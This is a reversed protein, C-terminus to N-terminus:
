RQKVTVRARGTARGRVLLGEPTAYIGEVSVSDVFASLTMVNGITRNLGQVLLVRGRELVPAVPVRARARLLDRLADGRVWAVVNVLDSDTDLDYDLDPVVIAASTDDIRPTGLLRLTGRADGHFRVTLAVRRGAAPAARISTIEISRGVQTITRGRLAETIERSATAWDVQGDVLIRFGGASTDHSLAPLPRPTVVPEPGVVIRPLADLGAQVTLVTGSGTVKGLRLRQPRLELWVDDRLRIPRELRAWWGGARESIDIRNVMRDIHPMRGAVARRAADVVRETVDFRVISVRCRDDGGRSEPALRALRARSELHWATDLTLPTVLEVIIEPRDGDGGCGASLTPGVRPSYWGRAEYSLRARMHVLSDRMFMTFPGRTAEFAIRRREDGRIPMQREMSGFTRPVAEEVVRLLPTFDYELPVDFSSPTAPPPPPPALAVISDERAGDGRARDGCGALLELAFVLRTCRAGTLWM